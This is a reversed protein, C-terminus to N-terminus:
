SGARIFALVLETQSSVFSKHTVPIEYLTAFM